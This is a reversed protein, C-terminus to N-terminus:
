NLGYNNVVGRILCSRPQSTNLISDGAIGIIGNRREPHSIDRLETRYGELKVKLANM